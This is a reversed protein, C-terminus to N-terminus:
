GRRNGWPGRIAFTVGPNQLNLFMTRGDASFCPGALESLGENRAVRYFRDGGIVGVLYDEGPGDEAVMLDGWPSMVCNDPRELLDRDPEAWLTVIERLPDVRWVQGARTKGGETACFYLAGRHFVMGEARVFAAAGLHLGQARTSGPATRGRRELPPRADLPDRQMDMEPDPDPIPMWDIAYNRGRAFKPSGPRNDTRVSPHEVIRLAELTGGRALDGPRLESPRRAGNEIMYPRFRYLLGDDRDETMYVFGTRPDVVASEHMFRGMAKIPVPDVLDEARADVEFVYGHPESAEITRDHNEPDPPGPMFTCEECSLWSDWPTVGGACNYWTGSLSPFSRVLRREDDVWLTTCGAHALPDYPRRRAPDVGPTDGPTIEHSRVLVTLGALGEFAGMGDHKAPVFEQNSLRQSFRQDTTTGLMATSLAVYDFGAPLDLLGAPDRVLPGFGRAAREAYAVRALLADLATPALTAAGAALAARLFRRRSPNRLDPSRTTMPPMM